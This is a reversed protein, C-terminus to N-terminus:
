NNRGYVCHKPILSSSYLLPGMLWIDINYLDADLHAATQLIEKAKKNAIATDGTVLTICHGVIKCFPVGLTCLIKGLWNGRKIVKMRYAMETAWGVVLPAFIKTIISKKGYKIVHEAIKTSLWFYGRRTDADIHKACYEFDAKLIHDPILGLKWFAVCMVSKGGGGSPPPKNAEIEQIREMERAHRASETQGAEAVLEQRLGGREAVGMQVASEEIGIRGFRESREAEQNILQRQLTLDMSAQQMAEARAMAADEAGIAGIQLNALQNINTARTNAADKILAERASQNALMLDRELQGRALVENRRAEQSLAAEQAGSKYGGAGAAERAQRLQGSTGRQINLLANERAATIEPSAMSRAEIMKRFDEDSREIEGRQSEIAESLDINGVFEKRQELLQLFAPDLDEGVRGLVGAPLQEEARGAGIARDEARQGRAEELRRFFSEDLKGFLDEDGQGEYKAAAYADAREKFYQDQIWEDWREQSFTM